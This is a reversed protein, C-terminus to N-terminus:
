GQGPKLTLRVFFLVADNAPPTGVVGTILFPQSLPVLFTGTLRLRPSGDVAPLWRSDGAVAVQISRGAMTFEAHQTAVEERVVATPLVEAWPFEIVATCQPHRGAEISYAVTEDIGAEGLTVSSADVTVTLVGEPLQTAVTQRLTAGFRQVRGAYHEHPRPCRFLIANDPADGDLVWRTPVVAPPQSPDRREGPFDRRAAECMAAAERGAHEALGVRDAVDGSIIPDPGKRFLREADIGTAHIRPVIHLKGDGYDFLNMVAHLSGGTVEGTYRHGLMARGFAASLEDVDWDPAPVPVVASQPAIGWDTVTAERSARRSAGGGACSALLLIVPLLAGLLNTRM